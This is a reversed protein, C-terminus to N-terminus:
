WHQGQCYGMNQKDEDDAVSESHEDKAVGVLTAANDMLTATTTTRQPQGKYGDSAASSSVRNWSTTAMYRVILCM